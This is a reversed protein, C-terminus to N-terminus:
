VSRAETHAQTKFHYLRTQGEPLVTFEENSIGAEQLSAALDLTPQDIAETTLQFTGFHIGLSQKSRLDRHAKVADSPNMHVQSMFWRPEYAGIPLFSLDMAGLRAYIERYHPSYGADGGFYVSHGSHRIVFGGWLSRNRDFLGRSSFHQTPTFWIEAEGRQGRLPLHFHDWWDMEHVRDLGHARLLAADGFSILFQPSFRHQLKQLTAIDLHDYHNHSVLVLDIRPLEELSLGPARVRRPGAWSVPSVRESWVPDTLINLGPLQILVTAHNVFTVAVQDSSLRQHLNPQPANHVKKPWRAPRWTLLMKLATALNHLKPQYPNFFQKGDFHDSIKAQSM